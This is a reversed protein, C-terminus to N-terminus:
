RQTSMGRLWAAVPALCPVDAEAWDFNPLEDATAWTFQAHERLAITTATGPTITAAYIDLSILRPGITATGRALFPGVTIQLGLEETIERALAATPSEGPEVKGGPFEWKGALAGHPGRQAVLCQNGQTIAAGVVHLPSM